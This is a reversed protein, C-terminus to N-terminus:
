RLQLGMRLIQVFARAQFAKREPKLQRFASGAPGCM